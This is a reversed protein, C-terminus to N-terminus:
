DGSQGTAGRPSGLPRDLGAASRVPASPATTSRGSPADLIWENVTKHAQGVLSVIRHVRQCFDCFYDRTLATM